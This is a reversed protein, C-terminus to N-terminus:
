MGSTKFASNGNGTERMISQVARGVPNGSVVMSAINSPSVLNRYYAEKKAWNLAMRHSKSTMDEISMNGLVAMYDNWPTDRAFIGALPNISNVHTGIPAHMVTSLDKVEFSIDVGIAHGNTSWGLNGTGRTISLSNIMGLRIANRGKVYLECLFPAGYSQNGHSMPLAAALLCALPVDINIFESLPNGYPARLELTYSSSPMSASSNDWREPIDVYASGTMAILGDLQMGSAIGSITDRVAKVVGDIAGFGTNFDSMSFRAAQNTSAFGNLKSQIESPSTQNSFSESVSEIADVKLHLWENASHFDDEIHKRISAEKANSGSSVLMVSGDPMTEEVLVPQIQGDHSAYARAKEGADDIAEQSIEGSFGGGGGALGGENGEEGAAPAATPGAAISADAMDKWPDAAAHEMDGLRSEHYGKLYDNLAMGRLNNNHGYSVIHAEMKKRLDEPSNASIAINELQENAENQMHQANGILAQVDLLGGRFWNPALKKLISYQNDYDKKSFGVDPQMGAAAYMDTEKDNVGSKGRPILGKNMAIDLAIMNVRAWYLPMAPKSSYYSTSPTSLIYKALKYAFIIPIMPLIVTTGIVQGLRFFIGNAFRGERALRSADSDYFGTFFTVLGKYQPQGFRMHINYSNDDITESYYRGLGNSMMRDRGPIDKSGAALRGPGAVQTGIPIDAFRTYKPPPNLIFSTGLGTNTFKFAASTYYLWKKDDESLTGKSPENPVHPLLFSNRIWDKDRLMPAEGTSIHPATKAM